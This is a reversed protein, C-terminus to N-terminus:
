FRTTIECYSIIGLRSVHNDLITQKEISYYTIIIFLLNQSVRQSVRATAM